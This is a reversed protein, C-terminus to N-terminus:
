LTPSRTSTCAYIVTCYNLSGEHCKGNWLVEGMGYRRFVVAVLHAPPQNALYFPMFLPDVFKHIFQVLFPHITISLEISKVMPVHWWRGRWFFIWSWVVLVWQMRQDLIIACSKRSYKIVVLCEHILRNGIRDTEGSRPMDSAATSHRARLRREIERGRPSQM